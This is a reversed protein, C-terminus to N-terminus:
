QKGMNLYVEEWTKPELIGFAMYTEYEPKTIKEIRNLSSSTWVHDTKYVFMAEKTDISRILYYNM